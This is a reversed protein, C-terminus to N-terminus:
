ASGNGNTRRPVETENTPETFRALAAELSDPEISPLEVEHKLIKPWVRDLYALLLKVDGEFLQKVFAAALAERPKCDVGEITGEELIREVLEEFRVKKARGKPNGSQGKQWRYPLLQPPCRSPESM